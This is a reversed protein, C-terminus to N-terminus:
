QNISTTTSLITKAFDKGLSSIAEIFSLNNLITHNRDIARLALSKLSSLDEEGYVLFLNILADPQDPKLELSKLTSALAQDPKGLKRYMEGLNMHADPNDPKLELSKLTSALAQDLDGLAQYICGLNVQADVLTPDLRIAKLTAELANDLDGAQWKLYGNRELYRSNTPSKNVAQDSFWIAKTPDVAALLISYNHLIDLNDQSIDTSRKFLKLARENNGLAKEITALLGLAFSNHHDAQLTKELATKAGKLDGQQYKIISQKIAEETQSRSSGQKIIRKLKQPKGFGAM